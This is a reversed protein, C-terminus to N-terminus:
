QIIITGGVQETGWSEVQPTEFVINNDVQITGTYVIKEGAKWEGAPLYTELTKTMATGGALQYSYVVYLAVQNEAITQPLMLVNSFCSSAKESLLQPTELKDWFYSPESLTWVDDTMSGVCDMGNLLIYTVEMKDNSNNESKKLDININTLMHSFTLSVFEPPESLTEIGITKAQMLDVVKEKNYEATQKLDIKEFSLKGKDTYNAKAITNPYLAYFDYINDLLWPKPPNYYWSSNATNYKVTTKKFVIEKNTTGTTKRWSWVSISDMEKSENILSRNEHMTVGFHINVEPYIEEKRDCAVCMLILIYIM